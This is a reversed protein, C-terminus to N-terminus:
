SRTQLQLSLKFLILIKDALVYQTNGHTYYHRGCYLRSSCYSIMFNAEFSNSFPNPSQKDDSIPKNPFTTGFTFNKKKFFERNIQTHAHTKTYM